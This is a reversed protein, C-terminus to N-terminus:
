AEPGRALFGRRVADEILGRAYEWLGPAGDAIRSNVALVRDHTIGHERWSQGQTHFNHLLPQMRDLAAAFRAEPTERGEFEEWLARMESALDEPLLGFIREAAKREQEVKEIQLAADYIFIDGVDIEVVDHILLMKVVRLLDLTPTGAHESLVLAMVALHWSHEADNERRSGDLLLNRRLVQKARDIELIFAIQRALREHIM